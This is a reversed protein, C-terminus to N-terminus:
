SLRTALSKRYRPFSRTSHFGSCIPRRSNDNTNNLPKAPRRRGIRTRSQPTEPSSSCGVRTPQLAEALNLTKELDLEFLVGTVNSPPHLTSFTTPAVGAFVIPIQPAVIDRHQMIFQLATGGVVIVVDPPRQAYKERVFAATRLAHEPDTVRVLDLFEADIAFKQQGLENLREEIGDIVRTASPFTYNYASLILVRRPMTDAYARGDPLLHAAAILLFVGLL